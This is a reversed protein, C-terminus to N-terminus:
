SKNTFFVIASQFIRNYFLQKRYGSETKSFDNLGPDFGDDNIAFNTLATM